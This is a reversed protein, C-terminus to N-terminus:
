HINWSISHKRLKLDHSYQFILIQIELPIGRILRMFPYSNIDLLVM